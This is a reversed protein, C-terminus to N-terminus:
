HAYSDVKKTGSFVLLAIQESIYLLNAGYEQMKSESESIALRAERGAYFYGLLLSAGLRDGDTCEDTKLNLSGIQKVIDMEPLYLISKFLNAILSDVCANEKMLFVEQDGIVPEFYDRIFQITQRCDDKSM